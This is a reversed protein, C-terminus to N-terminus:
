SGKCSRIVFLKAAISGITVEVLAAEMSGAPKLYGKFFIPLGLTLTPEIAIMRRKIGGAIMNVIEGIADAVDNEPLVSEPSEQGLLGAALTQCGAKNTILGVQLSDELSVMALHAGLMNPPLVNDVTVVRIEEFGLMNRAVEDLSDTMADIWAKMDTKTIQTM